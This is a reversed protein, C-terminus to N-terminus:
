KNGGIRKMKVESLLDAKDNISERKVDVLKAKEINNTTKAKVVHYFYRGNFKEQYEGDGRANRFYTEVIFYPRQYYGHTIKRLEDLTISIGKQTNTNDRKMKKTYFERKYFNELNYDFYIVNNTYIKTNEDVSEVYGNYGLRAGWPLAYWVYGTTNSDLTILNTNKPEVAELTGPEYKILEGKKFVEKLYYGNKSNVKYDYAMSVDRYKGKIYVNDDNFSINIILPKNGDGLNLVSVEYNDEDIKNYRVLLYKFIDNINAELVYNVRYGKFDGVIEVNQDTLTGFEYIMYRVINIIGKVEDIEYKLSNDFSDKDNYFSTIEKKNLDGKDLIERTRKDITVTRESTFPKSEYDEDVIIKGEDQYVEIVKNMFANFYKDYVSLNMMKNGDYEIMLTPVIIRKNDANHTLDYFKIFSIDKIGNIEILDPDMTKYIM